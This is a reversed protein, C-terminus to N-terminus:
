ITTMSSWYFWNTAYYGRLINTPFLICCHFIWMFVWLQTYTHSQTLSYSVVFYLMHLFKSVNESLLGGEVQLLSVWSYICQWNVWAVIFSNSCRHKRPHSLDLRDTQLPFLPFWVVSKIQKYSFRFLASNASYSHTFILIVMVNGHCALNWFTNDTPLTYSMSFFLVM